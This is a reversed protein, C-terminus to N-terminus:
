KKGAWSQLQQNMRVCDLYTNLFTDRLQGYEAINQFKRAYPEQNLLYMTTAIHEKDDFALYLGLVGGKLQTRDNGRIDFGNLPSKLSENPKSDKSTGLIYDYNDTLWKKLEFYHDAPLSEVKVNAYFDTTPYSFMIRLGATMDIHRVGEATDVARATIGPALPDIKVIQLGDSFHCSTYPKLANTEQGFAAFCCSMLGLIAVSGRKFRRKKIVRNRERARM